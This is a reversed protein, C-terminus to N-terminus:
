ECVPTFTLTASGTNDQATIDIFFAYVKTNETGEKGITIVTSQGEEVVYFWGKPNTNTTNYIVVKNVPLENKHYKAKSTLSVAYEQGSVADYPILDTMLKGKTIDLVDTLPNVTMTFKTAKTSM